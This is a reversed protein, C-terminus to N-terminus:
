VPIHVRASGRALCAGADDEVVLEVAVRCGAREVGGAGAEEVATVRGGVRVPRDRLNPAVFRLDVREVRGGDPLWSRLLVHVYAWQLRGMGIAGPYGARRGAEDDMHIPVFEDNVAAFRNWHALGPVRKLWPLVDGVGPAPDPGSM